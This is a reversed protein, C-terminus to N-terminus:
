CPSLAALIGRACFCLVYTPIMYRIHAFAHPGGTMELLELTENVLRRLCLRRFQAYDM